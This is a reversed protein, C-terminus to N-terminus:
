VRMAWAASSPSVNIAAQAPKSTARSHEKRAAQAAIAMPVVRAALRRYALQTSRHLESWVIESEDAIVPDYPIFETVSGSFWARALEAAESHIKVRGNSTVIVVRRSVDIGQHRFESVLRAALAIHDEKLQLPIVIVDATDIAARWNAAAMSNGTDVLLIPFYRAIVERLKIYQDGTIPSADPSSAIAHFGVEQWHACWRLALSNSDPRAQLWDLRQLLDGITRNHQSTVRLGLTGEMENNDLALVDGPRASALASALGVTLPTKGSGGKPQAVVITVPAPLSARIATDEAIRDMTRQSPGLRLLRRWQEDPKVHRPPQLQARLEQPDGVLASFPRSEPVAEMQDPRSPTANSAAMDGFVPHSSQPSAPVQQGNGGRRGDNLRRAPAWLPKSREGQSRAPTPETTMIKSYEM